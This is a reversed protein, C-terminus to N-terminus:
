AMRAFFIDYGGDDRQRWAVGAMAEAANDGALLAQARETDTADCWVGPREPAIVSADGVERFVLYRWHGGYKRKLARIHFGADLLNTWSRSNGPAATAYVEVVGAERAAALRQAILAGHLRRGWSAPRVSAGALKALAISQPLGIVPRADESAPLELQLVGYAALGRDDFAGVIRGGGGLIGAFFAKTEPKVLTKDDIAAIAELHLAYIADLDGSGLARWLPESGAHGRRAEPEAAVKAKDVLVGMTSM